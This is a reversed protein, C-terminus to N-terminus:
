NVKKRKKKKKKDLSKQRGDENQDEKILPLNNSSIPNNKTGFINDQSIELGNMTITMAGQNSGGQLISANQSAGVMLISDNMEIRFPPSNNIKMISSENHGLSTTLNALYNNHYSQDFPKIKAYVTGPPSQNRQQQNYLANQQEISTLNSVRKNQLIQNQNAGFTIRNNQSLLRLQQSNNFQLNQKFEFDDINDSQVGQSELSELNVGNIQMFKRNKEYHYQQHIHKMLELQKKKKDISKIDEKDGWQEFFNSREQEEQVKQKKKYGYYIYGAIAAHVILIYAVVIPVGKFSKIQEVEEEYIFPDFEADSLLDIQISLDKISFGPENLNLAQSYVSSLQDPLQFFQGACIGLATANFQDKCIISDLGCQDISTNDITCCDGQNNTFSTCYDQSFLFQNNVVCSKCTNQGSSSGTQEFFVQKTKIISIEEDKYTVLGNLNQQYKQDFYSIILDSGIRDTSM